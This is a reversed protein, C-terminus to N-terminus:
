SDPEVEYYLAEDMEPDPEFPQWIIRIDSESERRFRDDLESVLRNLM